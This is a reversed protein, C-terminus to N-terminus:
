YCSVEELRAVKEKYMKQERCWEDKLQYVQSELEKRELDRHTREFYLKHKLTDKENM